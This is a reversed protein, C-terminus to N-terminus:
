NNPVDSKIDKPLWITIVYCHFIEQSDVIHSVHM